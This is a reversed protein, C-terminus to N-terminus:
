THRKRRALSELFMRKKIEKKSERNPQRDPESVAEGIRDYDKMLATLAYRTADISNDVDDKKNPKPRGKSDLEESWRYQSLESEVDPSDVCVLIFDLMQQIQSAVEMKRVAKMSRGTARKLDNILRPDASDCLISAGRPTTEKIKTALAGESLGNEFILQQIYIKKSRLCVAVRVLADVHTFGFDIAYQSELHEPFSSSTEYYPFIRGAIFDNFIGLYNNQYFEKAIQCEEETLKRGTEFDEGDEARIRAVKEKYLWGADLFEKIAHFTCHVHKVDSRNSIEVSYKGFTKEKSNGKIFNKYVLGKRSRPNLVLCIRNTRDISRISDDLKNFSAWAKLSDLDEAEEIFAANVGELSKLGSTSDGSQHLGSLLIFSGTSKNIIKDTTVTFHDRLGLRKASNLFLPAISKMVSTAFYRAFLVGVGKEFTMLVIDEGIERSKGSGRGGTLLWYREKNNETDLIEKFESDKRWTTQKVNMEGESLLIKPKDKLKSIKKFAEKKKMVSISDIFKVIPDNSYGRNILAIIVKNLASPTLRDNM